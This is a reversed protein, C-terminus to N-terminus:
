GHNFLVLEIYEIVVSICSQKLHCIKQNVKTAFLLKEQYNRKHKITGKCSRCGIYTM